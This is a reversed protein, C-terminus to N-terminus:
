ISMGQFPAFKVKQWLHYLVAPHNVTIFTIMGRVGKYTSIDGYGKFVHICAAIRLIDVELHEKPDM